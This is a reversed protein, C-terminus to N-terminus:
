RATVRGAPRYMVRNRSNRRNNLRKPVVEIRPERDPDLQAASSVVIVGALGDRLMQLAAEWDGCVLGAVEYRRAACYDLCRAANAEFKDPQVFIVANTM